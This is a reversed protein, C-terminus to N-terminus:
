IVLKSVQFDDTEPLPEDPLILGEDVSSTSMQSEFTVNQPVPIPNSNPLPSTIPQSSQFHSLLNPDPRQPTAMETSPTPAVPTSYDSSTSSHNNGGSDENKTIDLSTPQQQKTQEQITITDFPDGSKDDSKFLTCVVPEESVSASSSHTKRSESISNQRKNLSEEDDFKQEVEIQAEAKVDQSRVVPTKELTALDVRSERCSHLLADDPENLQDFFSTDEKEITQNGDSFYQSLEPKSTKVPSNEGANASNQDVSEEIVSLRSIGAALDEPRVGAGPPPAFPTPAPTSPFGSSGGSSMGEEFKLRHIGAALQEPLVQSRNQVSPCPSIPTPVPTAPNSGSELGEDTTRLHNISEVLREPIIGLLPNPAAAGM